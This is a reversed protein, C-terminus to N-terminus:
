WVGIVIYSSGVLLGVGESVWKHDGLPKNYYTYHITSAFKISAGWFILLNTFPSFPHKSKVCVLRSSIKQM